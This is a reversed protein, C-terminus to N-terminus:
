QFIMHSVKMLEKNELFTFQTTTTHNWHFEVAMITWDFKCIEDVLMGLDSELLNLTVSMLMEGRDNSLICCNGIWWQSGSDNVLGVIVIILLGEVASNMQENKSLGDFIDETWQTILVEHQLLIKKWESIQGCPLNVKVAWCHQLDDKRLNFRISNNSHIQELSLQLVHFQLLKSIINCLHECLHLRDVHLDGSGHVWWGYILYWSFFQCTIVCM